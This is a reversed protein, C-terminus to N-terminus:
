DEKWVYNEKVKRYENKRTNTKTKHLKHPTEIKIVKRNM